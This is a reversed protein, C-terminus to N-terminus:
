RRCRRSRCATASPSPSPTSSAGASRCSRSPARRCNPACGTSSAWRAQLFAKHYEVGLALAMRATGINSSYTFIEPVTLVRNQAHYDHITFKGYRLPLRADFSSNLTVKGSDLAMALTLAKFTSGMEYVGTTLRNIRTPDNAESPNNPDYDPVSVM